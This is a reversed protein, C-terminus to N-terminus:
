GVRLRQWPPRRYSPLAAQVRTGSSSPRAAIGQVSRERRSNEAAESTRAGAAGIAGKKPPKSARQWALKSPLTAANRSRARPKKRLLKESPREAAGFRVKQAASQQREEELRAQEAAIRQRELERRAKEAAEAREREQQEMRAQEAAAQKHQEALRTHEISSQRRREEDDVSTDAPM